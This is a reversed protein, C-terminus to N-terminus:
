DDDWHEITSWDDAGLAPEPKQKLKEIWQDEFAQIEHKSLWSELAKRVIESRTLRNSAAFRDLCDLLEEDFHIRVNKM